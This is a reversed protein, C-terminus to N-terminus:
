CYRGAKRLEGELTNCLILIDCKRSQFYFQTLLHVSDRCPKCKRWLVNTSAFKINMECSIPSNSGDGNTQRGKVWSKLLLYLSKLQLEQQSSGCFISLHGSIRYECSRDFHFGNYQPSLCLRPFIFSFSFVIHASHVRNTRSRLEKDLQM